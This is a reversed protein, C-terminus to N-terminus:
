TTVRTILLVRPFIDDLFSVTWQLPNVKDGDENTFNANEKSEEEPSSSSEDVSENMMDGDADAKIEEKAILDVRSSGSM